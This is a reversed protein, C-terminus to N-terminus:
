AQSCRNIIKEREMDCPYYKEGIKNDMMLSNQILLGIKFMKWVKLMKKHEKYYDSELECKHLTRYCVCM